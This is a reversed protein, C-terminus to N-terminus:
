ISQITLGLRATHLSIRSPSPGRTRTQTGHSNYPVLPCQCGSNRTGVRRAAQVGEPLVMCDFFKRCGLQIQWRPTYLVTDIGTGFGPEFCTKPGVFDLSLRPFNYSRVQWPDDRRRLDGVDLVM